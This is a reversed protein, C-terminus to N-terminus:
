FNMTFFCPTVNSSLASHPHLSSALPAFRRVCRTEGSAQIQGNLSSSGDVVIVQHGACSLVGVQPDMGNLIIVRPDAAHPAILQPDMPEVVIVQPGACSLAAVQPDM